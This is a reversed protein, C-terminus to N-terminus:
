KLDKKGYYKELLISEKEILQIVWPQLFYNLYMTNEDGDFIDGFSVPQTGGALSIINNSSLEVTTGNNTPLQLTHDAQKIFKKILNTKNNDLEVLYKITKKIYKKSKYNNILKKVTWMVILVILMTVSIIFAMGIVPGYKNKFDLLYFVDIIKEPLFLILGTVISIAALISPPLKFIELFEKFSGM